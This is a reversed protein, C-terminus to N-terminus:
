RRSEFERRAALERRMVDIARSSYGTVGKGARALEAELLSIVKLNSGLCVFEGNRIAHAHQSEGQHSAAPCVLVLPGSEDPYSKWPLGDALYVYGLSRDRWFSEPCAAGSSRLWRADEEEVM